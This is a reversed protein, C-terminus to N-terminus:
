SDMAQPGLGSESRCAPDRTSLTEAMALAEERTTIERADQAERLRELLRGLDPGPAMGLALLDHGTVLPAAALTTLSQELYELILGIGRIEQDQRAQASSGPGRTARIDALCLLVAPVLDPGLRRMWRLRAKRTGEPRLLVGVHLHHRVLGAIYDREAGSLRLRLTATEAMVAGLDDHGYFTIRGTAPNRGKAAPKGLDHLLVALKLWPARWGQLNHLVSEAGAGFLHALGGLLADIEQVAALSHEFVDLHHFHNQTCGRLAQIEPFLVDLVGAREMEALLRGTGPPELTLRLEVAIREGPMRALEPAWATIDALTAPEIDWGLQARFRFGRLIRLPDQEMALPGTRRLLGDRVDTLGGCPDILNRSWPAPFQDQATPLGVAQPPLDRLDLAMANVTFDRRALDEGIDKGHIETVDLFPPRTDPTKPAVNRFVVRFSPPVHDQGLPVLRGDLAESLKRAFQGANHCALDLDNLPRGLLLDRVGGGVLYVGQEPRMIRQVAEIIRVLRLQSSSFSQSM